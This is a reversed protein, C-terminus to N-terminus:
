VKGELNDCLVQPVYSCMQFGTSTIMIFDAQRYFHLVYMFSGFIRWAVLDTKM